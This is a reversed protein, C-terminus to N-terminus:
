DIITNLKDEMEKQLQKISIPKVYWVTWQPNAQELCNMYIFDYLLIHDKTVAKKWKAYHRWPKDM